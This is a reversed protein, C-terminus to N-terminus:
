LQMAEVQALLSPNNAMLGGDVFIKGDITHAPFYTPAASTALAADVLSINENIRIYSEKKESNPGKLLAADVKTTSNSFVWGHPHDNDTIDCSTIFLHNHVDKLTRHEDGDKKLLSELKKKLGENSYLPALLSTGPIWSLKGYYKTFVQAHDKEYIDCLTSADIGTSLGISLIGGTSTGAVMDVHNSINDDQKVAKIQKEIERLLIAPVLGRIGGGDVSLLIFKPSWAPTLPEM